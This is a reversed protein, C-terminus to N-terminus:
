KVNQLEKKYWKADFLFPHLYYNVLCRQYILIIRNSIPMCNICLIVKNYSEGGLLWRVWVRYRYLEERLLWTESVFINVNRSIFVRLNNQTGPNLFMNSVNNQYSNRKVFYQIRTDTKKQLNSINIYPETFYIILMCDKDYFM